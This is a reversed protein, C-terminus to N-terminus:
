IVETLIRWEKLTNGDFTVEVPVGKLQDLKTKKASNLLDGVWMVMDGLAARRDDDTWKCNKSREMAWYGRFDCVGWCGKDSSLTISVGIQADQYGGLGFSISQIKGIRKEM